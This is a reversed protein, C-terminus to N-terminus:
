NRRSTLGLPAARSRWRTGARARRSSRHGFGARWIPAGKRARRTPNVVGEHPARAPRAARPPRRRYRRWRCRLRPARRPRCQRACVRVIGITKAFPPSGTAPPTTGRSLWGPPFIVPKPPESAVSPPLHSSSSESIAGPSLRTAMMHFGSVAAGTDVKIGENSVVGRDSGIM